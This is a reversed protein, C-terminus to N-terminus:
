GRSHSCGGRVMRCEPGTGCFSVLAEEPLSCGGRWKRLWLDRIGRTSSRGRAERWGKKASPVEECHWIHRVVAKVSAELCGPSSTFISCEQIGYLVICYLVCFCPRKYLVCACPLTHCFRASVQAFACECRQFNAAQLNRDYMPFKRNWCWQHQGRTTESKHQRTAINATHLHIATCRVLSNKRPLSKVFLSCGWCRWWSCASPQHCTLIQMNAPM